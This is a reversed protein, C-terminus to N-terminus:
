TTIWFTFNIGLVKDIYRHQIIYVRFKLFPHKPFMLLPSTMLATFTVSIIVPNDQSVCQGNNSWTCKSHNVIQRAEQRVVRESTWMNKKSADDHGQAEIRCYRYCYTINPPNFLFYSEKLAEVRKSYDFGGNGWNVRRDFTWIWGHSTENGWAWKTFSVQILSVRYKGQCLSLIWVICCFGSATLQTQKGPSVTM